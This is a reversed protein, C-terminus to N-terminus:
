KPKSGGSSRSSAQSELSREVLSRSTVGEVFWYIGDAGDNGPGCALLRNPVEGPEPRPCHLDAPTPHDRELRRVVTASLWMGTGNTLPGLVANDKRAREGGAIYPTDYAMVLDVDVCDGTGVPKSVIHGPETTSVEPLETSVVFRKYKRRLIEASWRVRAVHYARPAVEVGAFSYEADLGHAIFEGHEHATDAWGHDVKIHFRHSTHKKQPGHVSLKVKEKGDSLDVYFGSRKGTFRWVDAIPYSKFPAVGVFFRSYTATM